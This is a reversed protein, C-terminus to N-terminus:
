CARILCGTAGRIPAPAEAVTHTQTPTADNRALPPGVARFTGGDRWSRGGFPAEHGNEGPRAGVKARRVLLWVGIAMLACLWQGMTLGLSFASSATPERFFETTFRLAGYGLAFMGAVRGDPRSKRSFCGSWCSCCWARRSSSTSSRRTVRFRTLMPFVMAWPLSPDAARGLLEANIFNGMRGAGLGPPVLPSIFDMVRWFPRETRRGYLWMAFLVGLLGGHFSM